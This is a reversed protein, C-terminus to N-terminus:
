SPWSLAFCLYHHRHHHHHHHNEIQPAICVDMGSGLKHRMSPCHRQWIIFVFFVFLSFSSSISSPAIVPKFVLSNQIKLSFSFFVWIRETGWPPCELTQPCLQLFGHLCVSEQYPKWGCKSYITWSSSDSRSSITSNHWSATTSFCDFSNSLETNKHLFSQRRTELNSFVCDFSNSLETNKHLFSHHRTELNSFVCDFSNRLHFCNSM